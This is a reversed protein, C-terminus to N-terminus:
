SLWYVSFSTSLTWPVTFVLGPQLHIAVAVGVSLAASSM